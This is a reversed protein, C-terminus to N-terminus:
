GTAAVGASDESYLAEIERAFNKAVVSRRTKMTPTLEGAELSLSRPLIAFRRVGEVRAFEGNVRDVGAQLEARVAASEELPGSIGHAAAFAAAVDPKLSLLAALYKRRDGVVVADNVLPISKLADEINNPSINKGGATIIIEKKRGTISLFGFADFSGLDGTHLWGDVIAEATAVPDKHYGSFVNPGRVLIEGDEAIRIEVDPIPQGVTGFKVAGDRNFTAPGSDESQGYVEQILLDFGAFFDLVDRSLPAAGSAVVRAQDLGTGQLVKSFVLKRALAYQAALVGSPTQGIMRLRNARLGVDQAWAAIRRRTPSAAALKPRIGEYFKEWVRPVGFFLTPRVTLIDERLTDLSQVFYSAHGGLATGHITFMQEAVHSLPLYSLCRDDATVKLREITSSATWMLNAHSLIVAKPPGTTGSTYIFTAPDQLKLQAVRDDVASEPVADGAALFQEWSLAIPHPAPTSGRMFVVHRLKPLHELQSRVKEWQQSDEVLLFGAEAHNVIYALEPASSTTYIGAPIGGALMAALDFVCWEPRNFGIITVTDGPKFGLAILARAARRTEAVHAAWPTSVWDSGRRVFYAPRDPTKQQWAVFRAPVTDAAM